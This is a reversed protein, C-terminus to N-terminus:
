VFLALSSNQLDFMDWVVSAESKPLHRAGESVAEEDPHSVAASNVHTKQVSLLLDLTEVYTKPVHDSMMRTSM